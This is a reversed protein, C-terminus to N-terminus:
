RDNLARCSWTGVTTPNENDDTVPALSNCIKQGEEDVDNNTSWCCSIESSQTMAQIAYLGTKRTFLAYGGTGSMSSYDQNFYRSNSFDSITLQNTSTPFSEHQGFYIEVAGQWLRAYDIAERARALEVNLIYKPLAISALITVILVVVLIELLTFGKKNIKKM